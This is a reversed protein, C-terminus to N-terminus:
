LANRQVVCRLTINVRDEPLGAERARMPEANVHHKYVQQTLGAMVLASGHVLRKMTLPGRGRSAKTQLCFLRARGLSISFIPSGPVLDREDDSHPGISDEPRYFNLLAWNYPHGTVLRALDRLEALAGTPDDAWPLPAHDAGTYRYSTGPDGFFATDHGERVDRGFMKLLRRKWPIQAAGGPRLLEFYRDAMCNLFAPRYYVEAGGVLGPIKEAEVLPGLDPPLDRTALEVGAAVSEAHLEKDLTGRLLAALVPSPSPSPHASRSAEALSTARSGDYVFVLTEKAQARRVDFLAARARPSRVIGEVYLPVYARLYAEPTDARSNRWIHCLPKSLGRQSLIDIADESRIGALLWRAHARTPSPNAMGDSHEPFLQTFWWANLAVKSELPQEGPYITVPGISTDCLHSSQAYLVGRPWGSKGSSLDVVLSRTPVEEGPAGLVIASRAM